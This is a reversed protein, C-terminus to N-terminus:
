ISDRLGQDASANGNPSVVIFGHATRCSSFGFAERSIARASPLWLIELLLGRSLSVFDCDDVDDAVVWEADGIELPLDSETM